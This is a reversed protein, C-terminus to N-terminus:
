GCFKKVWLKDECINLLDNISKQLAPHLLDPFIENLPELVFRRNRIEPHPIKLHDTNLILDDYFLIDIDMTRSEYGAQLRQRGLENEIQHIHQLLDNPSHSTQVELVQNLFPQEAEFGWPESEYISSKCVIAGIKEEILLVAKNINGKRDDLNCGLLLIAQNM